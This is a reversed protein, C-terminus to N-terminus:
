YDTTLLLYYTTPLLYHTALLLYYFLLYSTAMLATWGTTEAAADVAASNDILLKAVAWHGVHCASILATWGVATRLNVPSGHELLLRTMSEFGFQSAIILPFYGHGTQM